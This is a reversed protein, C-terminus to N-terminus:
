IDNSILLNYYQTLIQRSTLINDSITEQHLFLGLGQNIAVYTIRYCFTFYNQILKLNVQKGNTDMLFASNFKAHNRLYKMNNANTVLINCNDIETEILDCNSETVDYPFIQVSDDNYCGLFKLARIISRKYIEMMEPWHTFIIYKDDSGPQFSLFIDNLYDYKASDRYYSVVEPIEEPRACVKKTPTVGFGNRLLTFENTFKSMCLPCASKELNWRKLCNYCFIHSCSGNRIPFQVNTICIACDTVSLDNEVDSYSLDEYNPFNVVKVGGPRFYNSHSLLERDLIRANLTLGAEITCILDNLSKCNKPCNRITNRMALMLHAFPYNQSQPFVVRTHMPSGIKYPALNCCLYTRMRNVFRETNSKFNVSPFIEKMRLFHCVYASHSVVNDMNELLWVCKTDLTNLYKGCTSKPSINCFNDVVINGWQIASLKDKLQASNSLFTKDVIVVNSLQDPISNWCMSHEKKERGSWEFNRTFLYLDFKSSIFLTKEQYKTARYTVLKLMSFTKGNSTGGTIVGGYIKLGAYDYIQSQYPSLFKPQNSESKLSYGFNDAILVQRKEEFFQYPTTHYRTADTQRSYDESIEFHTFCKYDCIIPIKVSKVKDLDTVYSLLKAITNCRTDEFVKNFKQKFNMTLQGIIELTDKGPKVQIMAIIGTKESIPKKPLYNAYFCNNTHTFCGFSHLTTQEWKSFLDMSVIIPKTQLLVVQHQTDVQKKMVAMAYPSLLQKITQVLTFETFTGDNIMTKERATRMTCNLQTKYLAMLWLGLSFPPLGLNSKVCESYNRLYIRATNEGLLESWVKEETTGLLKSCDM